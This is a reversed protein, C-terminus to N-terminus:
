CHLIDNMTLDKRHMEKWRTRRAAQEECVHQQCQLAEARAAIRAAQRTVVAKQKAEAKCIRQQQQTHKHLLRRIKRIAREEAGGSHRRWTGSQRDERAMALQGRREMRRALRAVVRQQSEQAAMDRCNQREIRREERNLLIQRQEEAAMAARNWRADEALCRMEMDRQRREEAQM